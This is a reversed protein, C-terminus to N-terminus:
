WGSIAGATSRSRRAHPAGLGRLASAYREAAARWSFTATTHEAARRSLTALAARDAHYRLIAAVFSAADGSEVLHGNAGEAIVDSIGELRAAISPLGCAGAELMVLGFGEMDGHVPVNPMVFLDAGRYLLTLQSETVSGLLRVRDGLGLREVAGLIHASEPGEGALWYHVDRPLVPMVQEVFWHFGKRRVHRGVSLLLLARNPLARAPGGLEALLEARALARDAVPPFRRPDVGLPMVVQREHPLGRATCALATANSIPFVSDLAGFIRPVLWQYPRAPLTVDLGYAIAACPVGHRELSRRLPLALTATMMSSFLVADVEGLAVRRAIGRLALALFLPVRWHRERWASRLVLPLLHIHPHARLADLLEVAVRQMGGVSELPRDHPPLSHSVYLLRLAGPEPRM